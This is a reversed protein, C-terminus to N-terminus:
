LKRCDWLCLNQNWTRPLGGSPFGFDREKALLQGLAKIDTPFPQKPFDTRLNPLQLSKKDSLTSLCLGKGANQAQVAHNSPSKPLLCVIM